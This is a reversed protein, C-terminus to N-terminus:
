SCRAASGACSSACARRTRSGRRSRRRSSRRPTRRSDGASADEIAAEDLAARHLMQSFFFELFDEITARALLPPQVEGLGRVDDLQEDFRASRPARPMSRRAAAAGPAIFVLATSASPTAGRRAPARARRGALALRARRARDRDRGDGRARRRRVRAERLGRSAPRDSRGNGRGDFTLVRCHRALYPIQM